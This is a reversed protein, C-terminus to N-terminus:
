VLFYFMSNGFIYIEVLMIPPYGGLALAMEGKPMRTQAHARPGADRPNRTGTLMMVPAKLFYKVEKGLEVNKSSM